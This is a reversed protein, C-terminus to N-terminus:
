ILSQEITVALAPSSYRYLGVVWELEMLLSISASSGIAAAMAETNLNLDFVYAAQDGIGIKTWSNAQALFSGSPTSKLALRGTAEYPLEIAKDGELFVVEIPLLDGRRLSLQSSGVWALTKTSIALQMGVSLFTM